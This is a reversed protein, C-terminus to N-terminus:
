RLREVRLPIGRSSRWNEPIHANWLERFAEGMAAPVIAQAGGSRHDPSILVASRVSAPWRVRRVVDAYNTSRGALAFASALDFHEAYAALCRSVLGGPWDGPHFERNYYGVPEAALVLGYGGSIILLHVGASIADHLASSAVSYLRGSYREWAPLTTRGDVRAAPAVRLRAASLEEAMATPLYHLVNPGVTQVAAPAKEGSCPIVLLTRSLDTLALAETSSFSSDAVPAPAAAPRPPHADVSAAIQSVSPNAANTISAPLNLIRGGVEKRRETFGAAALRHCIQNVQQHPSVATLACIQTDTLGSPHALIVELVLASNTGQRPEM